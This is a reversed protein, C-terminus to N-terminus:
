KPSLKQLKTSPPYSASNAFGAPPLAYGVPRTEQGTQRQRLRGSAFGATPVTHIAPM